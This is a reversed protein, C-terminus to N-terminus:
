GKTQAPNFFFSSFVWTEIDQRSYNLVPPKDSLSFPFTVTFLYQGRRAAVMSAFTSAPSSLSSAPTAPPVRGILVTPRPSLLENTDNGQLSKLLRAVDGNKSRVKIRREIIPSGVFMNLSLSLFYSLPLNRSYVCLM